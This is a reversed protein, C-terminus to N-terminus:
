SFLLSAVDHNEKSLVQFGAHGVSVILIYQVDIAENVM